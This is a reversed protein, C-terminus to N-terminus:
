VPKKEFPPIVPRPGRPPEIYKEGSPTRFWNPRGEIPVAKPKADPDRNLPRGLPYDNM